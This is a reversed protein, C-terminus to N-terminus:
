ASKNGGYLGSCHSLIKDNTINDKFNKFLGAAYLWSIQPKVKYTSPVWLDTPLTTGSNSVLHIYQLNRTISAKVSTEDNIAYRATIRPELGGYTKIKQGAKYVATDIRTSNPYTTYINYPGVQQFWSYRLGMNIKVKDSVEWEDQFYM